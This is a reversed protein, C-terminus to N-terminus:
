GLTNWAKILLWESSGPWRKLSDIAMHTYYNSKNYERAHFLIEGLYQIAGSDKTAVFFNTNLEIANVLYAAALEIENYHAMIAGYKWSIFSIFREDGTYYAEKLANACFQKAYMKGTSLNYRKHTWGKLYLVGANFYHNSSPCSKELESMAHLSAASDSGDLKNQINQIAALTSNNLDNVWEHISFASTQCLASQNAQFLVFLFLLLGHKARSAAM